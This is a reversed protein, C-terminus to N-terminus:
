VDCSYKCVCSEFTSYDVHSGEGGRLASSAPMESCESETEVDFDLNLPNIGELWGQLSM